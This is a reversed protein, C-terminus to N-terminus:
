YVRFGVLARIKNQDEHELKYIKTMDAVVAEVNSDTLEAVMRDTVHQLSASVAMATMNDLPIPSTWNTM